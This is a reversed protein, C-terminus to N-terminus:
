TGAAAGFCRVVEPPLPRWVGGRLDDTDAYWTILSSSRNGRMMALWRRLRQAPSGGRGDHALGPLRAAVLRVLVEAPRPDGDQEHLLALNMWTSLRQPKTARATRLDAEGAARDGLVLHAEARYIFLTPGAFNTTAIGEAFVDLARRAEGRCLHVAGLGIWAWKTQPDAALSARFDAEAADYRGMWLGLEGRYTHVLPHGGFRALLADFSELAADPGRTFLCKQAARGLNRPDPPRSFGALRGGEVTSLAATRNGGFRSRAERLRAIGPPSVFPELPALQEMLEGAGGLGHGSSAAVNVFRNLRGALSFRRSTSMARDAAAIGEEFAGAAELAESLWCWAVSDDPDRAVCARLAAVAPQGDLVDAAARTRAALPDAPDVGELAARAGATDAAWLAFRARWGRLEAEVPGAEAPGSAWGRAREPLGLLVLWAVVQPRRADDARGWAEVAEAAGVAGGRVRLELDLAVLRADDPRAALGAAVLERAAGPDGQGGYSHARQCIFDIDDPKAAIRGLVARHAAGIRGLATAWEVRLNLWDAGEPAGAALRELLGWDRRRLALQALRLRAVEDVPAQLVREALARTRRRDAERKRDRVTTLVPTPM